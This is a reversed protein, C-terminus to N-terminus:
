LEEIKIQPSTGRKCIYNNNKVQAVKEIEIKHNFSDGDGSAMLSYREGHLDLIECYNEDEFMLHFQEEIQNELYDNLTFTNDNHYYETTWYFTGTKM